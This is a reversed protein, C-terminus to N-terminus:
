CPHRIVDEHGIEKIGLIGQENETWYTKGFFGDLELAGQMM